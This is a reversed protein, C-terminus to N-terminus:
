SWSVQGPSYDTLIPATADLTFILWRSTTDIALLSRGTCSVVLYQPLPVSADM